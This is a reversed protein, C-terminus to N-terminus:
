RSVETLLSTIQVIQPLGDAATTRMSLRAPRVDDRAEPNIELVVARNRAAYMPLQAAPQVELSTGIILFVDCDGAAERARKWAAQPMQEGFWTVDPRLFGGCHGCRDPEIRLQPNDRADGAINLAGGPRNCAFCRLFGIRGHLHIVDKSGGREHLDDVNQTILTFRAKQQELKAIAVHGANPVADRVNAARWCYWGMVLNRDERWAGRTALQAPNFREWLGTHADRFTPIGSEQSMGAGTLVVLHRANAIHRAFVEITETDEPLSM